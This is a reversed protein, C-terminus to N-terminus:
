KAEILLHQPTVSDDRLSSFLEALTPARLEQIDESVEGNSEAMLWLDDLVSEPMKTKCHCLVDIPILQTWQVHSHLSGCSMRVEFCHADCEQGIDATCLFRIDWEVKSYRCASHCLPCHEFTYAILELCGCLVAGSTLTSQHKNFLPKLSAIHSSEFSSAKERSEMKFWEIRDVLHWWWKDRGHQNMRDSPTDSIGVYLLKDAPTMCHFAKYLWCESMVRM